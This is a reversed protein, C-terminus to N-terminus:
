WRWRKGRKPTFDLLIGRQRREAEVMEAGVDRDWGRDPFWVARPTGAKYLRDLMDATGPTKQAESCRVVSKSLTAPPPLRKV